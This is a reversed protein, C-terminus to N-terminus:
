NSKFLFIISFIIELILWVHQIEAIRRVCLLSCFEAVNASKLMKM